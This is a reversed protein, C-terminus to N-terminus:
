REVHVAGDVVTVPIVQAEDNALTVGSLAIRAEGAGRTRFTVQVLTGSGSVPAAPAALALVYQGQGAANDVVNRVLFGLSVNLFDGPAMQIGNGANGDADQAELRAADFTLVLELGYLNTVNEVRISVTVVQNLGASQASPHVRVAASPPAPTVTATPAPLLTRTVTPTRTTALTPTRTALATPVPTTTRTPPWLRTCGAGTLAILAAVTIVVLVCIIWNTAPRM